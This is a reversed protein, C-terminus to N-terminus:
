TVGGRNASAVRTGAVRRADLREKLRDFLLDTIYLTESMAYIEREDQEEVIDEGARRPEYILFHDKKDWAEQLITVVQVEIKLEARERPYFVGKLCREGKSRRAPHLRIADEFANSRLQYQQKLERQWRSLPADPSSYPGELKRKIADVDSLFNAVVRFRGIDNLEALNDFGVRPAMEGPRHWERAMKELISDPEKVIYGADIRAFFRPRGATGLETTLEDLVPLVRAVLATAAARFASTRDRLWETVRERREAPDHPRGGADWPFQEDILRNVKDKTEM